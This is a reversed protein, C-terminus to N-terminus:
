SNRVRGHVTAHDRDVLKGLLKIFSTCILTYIYFGLGNLCLSDCCGYMFVFVAVFVSANYLYDENKMLRPTFIAYPILQQKYYLVRFRVTVVSKKNKYVLSKTQLPIYKNGNFYLKYTLM